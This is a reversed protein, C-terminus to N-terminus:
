PEVICCNVVTYTDYGATIGSGSVVTQQTKGLRTAAHEINDPVNATWASPEYEACPLPTNSSSVGAAGPCLTWPPQDNSAYEGNMKGGGLMNGTWVKANPPPYVGVTPPPGQPPMDSWGDLYYDGNPALMGATMYMYASGPTVYGFPYAKFLIENVFQWAARECATKQSAGGCGVGEWPWSNGIVGECENYVQTFVSNVANWAETSTYLTRDGGATTSADNVPVGCYDVLLKECSGGPISDNLFSTVHYGDIPVTCGPTGFSKVLVGPQADEYYIGSGPSLSALYFPSIVRSCEHPEGTASSSPPTIGNWYTETFRQGSNDQLLKAHFYTLGMASAIPALADAAATGSNTNLAVDGSAGTTYRAPVYTTDVCYPGCIQYQARAEASWLAALALALTCGWTKTTRRM